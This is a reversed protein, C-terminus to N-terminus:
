GDVRVDITIRGSPHLSCFGAISAAESFRRDLTAGPLVTFPGIRHAVDDHNVVVLRDRLPLRLDDPLVRVDEGARVRAATGPPIEYTHATPEPRDSLRTAALPVAVLAAAAAVFAVVTRRRSRGGSADDVAGDEDGAIRDDPGGAIRRGAAISPEEPLPCPAAVTDDGPRGRGWPM